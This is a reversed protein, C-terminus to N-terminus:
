SRWRSPPRSDPADMAVGLERLLRAARLASDREIAVATHTKAGFRGEITLGEAALIARAQACRDLAECALRLLEAGAADDLVYEAMVRRWLRRGDSGLHTPIRAPRRARAGIRAPEASM